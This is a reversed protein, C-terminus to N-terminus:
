DSSDIIEMLKVITSDPMVAYVKQGYGCVPPENFLRFGSDQVKELTFHDVNRDQSVTFFLTGMKVLDAYDERKYEVLCKGIVRSKM